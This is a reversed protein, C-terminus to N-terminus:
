FCFWYGCKSSCEIGGGENLTKARIPSGCDPCLDEKNWGDIEKVQEYFKNLKKEKMEEFEYETIKEIIKFEDIMIQVDVLEEIFKGKDIRNRNRHSAATLLEGCEESLAIIQSVIGKNRVIIEVADEFTM